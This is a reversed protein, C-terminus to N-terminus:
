GSVMVMAVDRGELTLLAVIVTQGDREWSAGLPDTIDTLGDAQEWGEATLQEDYHEIVQDPGSDTVDYLRKWMVFEGTAQMSAVMITNLQTEVGAVDLLEVGPPDEPLQVAGPGEEEAGSCSSLLLALVLLIPAFLRRVTM